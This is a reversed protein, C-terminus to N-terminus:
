PRRLGFHLQACTMSGTPTQSSSTTARSFPTRSTPMGIAMDDGLGGASDSGEICRQLASSRGGHAMKQRSCICCAAHVSTPDVRDARRRPRGASAVSRPGHRMNIILQFQDLQEVPLEAPNAGKFIRDVHSAARRWAVRGDFGYSMLLGDRAMFSFGSTTLLRREIAFIVPRSAVSSRTLTPSCDFAPHWRWSPFDALDEVLETVFCFVHRRRPPARWRAATYETTCGGPEQRVVPRM